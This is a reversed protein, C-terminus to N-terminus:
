TSDNCSSCAERTTAQFRNESDVPNDQRVPGSRAPRCSRQPCLGEAPRERQDRALIKKRVLPLAVRRLLLAHSRGGLAYHASRGNQSIGETALAVKRQRSSDRSQLRRGKLRSM